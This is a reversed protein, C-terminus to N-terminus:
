ITDVLQLIVSSLYVELVVDDTQEFDVEVEDVEVADLMVDTATIKVLTEDDVDDVDDNILEIDVVEVEDLMGFM